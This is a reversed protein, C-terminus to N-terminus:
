RRGRCAAGWGATWLTGVVIWWPWALLLRPHTPDGGDQWLKLAALTAVSSLMAVPTWRDDGRRTLLGLLFVGLLAGFILGAWGFADVLLDRRGAFALAIAVLLAGFGVSLWRGARLYHADSRGPAVYPRYVDVVATSSLAGLASDLSSMAAACVGALLLGRLGNGAPVAHAIFDPFIRDRAMEAAPAWAGTGSRALVFMMAGVLLFLSTVPVGILANFVLSRRARGADACTLMRQTLDQDTGFAAAYQFAGYVFLVWFARDSNWNLDGALLDLKGADWATQLGDGVPGPTTTFLFVLVAAASAVFVLAQLADTWIIAKIGGTTAYLVAMAAVALLAWHLPWQLIVSIAISAALLRLSSGLIRSGFFLAAATARTHPGFRQGLFEYVTTVRARYLAPLFLWAVVLRGCVGGLVIHLYDFDTAFARGPVSVFTLASLETALISLGVIPWPQRRGGLFYDDVGAEKRGFWLGVGLVAAFYVVLVAADRFAM